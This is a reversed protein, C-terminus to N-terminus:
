KLQKFAKQMWYKMFYSATVQSCIADGDRPKDAIALSRTLCSRQQQIDASVINAQTWHLLCIKANVDQKGVAKHVFSNISVV